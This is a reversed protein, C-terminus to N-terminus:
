GYILAWNVLDEGTKTNHLVYGGVAQIEAPSLGTILNLVQGLVTEPLQQQIHPVPLLM